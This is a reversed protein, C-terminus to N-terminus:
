AQPDLLVQLESQVLQVQLVQQAKFQVLTLGRQLQFAGCMCILASLTLMAQTEQQTLLM